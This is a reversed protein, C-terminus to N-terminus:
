KGMFAKLKGDDYVLVGRWDAVLVKANFGIDNRDIFWTKDGTLGDFGYIGDSADLCYDWRSNNLNGVYVLNGNLYVPRGPDNLNFYYIIGGILAALPHYDNGYSFRANKYHPKLDYEFTPAGNQNLITLKTNKESYVFVKDEIMTFRYIDPINVKMMEFTKPDFRYLHKLMDDSSRSTDGDSIHTETELWIYSGYSEAKKFLMKQKMDVPNIAWLPLGSWCDLAIFTGGSGRLFVNNGIAFPILNIYGDYHWRIEKSKLDYCFVRKENLSYQPTADVMFFGIRDVADYLIANDQNDKNNGVEPDYVTGEVFWGQPYSHTIPGDFQNTSKEWKKTLKTKTKIYDPKWVVLDTAWKDGLKVPKPLDELKVSEWDTTPILHSDKPLGTSAGLEIAKFSAEMQKIIAREEPTACSLCMLILLLATVGSFVKPKKM